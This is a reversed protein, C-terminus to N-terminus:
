KAGRYQQWAEILAPPQPRVRAAEIERAPIRRVRARDDLVAGSLSSWSARDLMTRSTSKAARRRADRTQQRKARLGPGPKM